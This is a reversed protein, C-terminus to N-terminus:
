WNSKKTSVIFTGMASFIIQTQCVLRTVVIGVGCLEVGNPYICKGAHCIACCIACRSSSGNEFVVQAVLLVIQLANWHLPWRELYLYGQQLTLLIMIGGLRYLSMIYVPLDTDKYTLVEALISHYWLFYVFHRSSVTTQHRLMANYTKEISTCTNSQHM